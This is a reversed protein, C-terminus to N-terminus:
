KEKPPKSHHSELFGRIAKAVGSALERNGTRAVSKVTGTVMAIGIVQNASADILQIQASLFPNGAFGVVRLATGGPDYDMFKGRVILAPKAGPASGVASFLRAKRLLDISEKQTM